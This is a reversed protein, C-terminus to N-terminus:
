YLERFILVRFNKLLCKIIMLSVQINAGGYGTLCASKGEPSLIYLKHIPIKPSHYSLWSTCLFSNKDFFVAWWQHLFHLLSKMEACFHSTKRMEQVPPFGIKNKLFFVNVM